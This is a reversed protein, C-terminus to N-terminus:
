REWTRRIPRGPLERSTFGDPSRRSSRGADYMVPRHAFSGGIVQLKRANANFRELERAQESWFPAVREQQVTPTSVVIPGAADFVGGRWQSLAPGNRLIDAARQQPSQAFAASVMVLVSIMAGGCFKFVRVELSAWDFELMRPSPERLTEYRQECHAMLLRGTISARTEGDYHDAALAPRCEDSERLQEIRM